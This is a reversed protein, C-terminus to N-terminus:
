DEKAKRRQWEVKARLFVEARAGLGPFCINRGIVPAFTIIENFNFFYFKTKREIQV